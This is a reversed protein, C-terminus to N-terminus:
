YLIDEDNDGYLAAVSFSESLYKRGENAHAEERNMYKRQEHTTKPQSLIAAWFQEADADQEEDSKEQYKPKVLRKIM